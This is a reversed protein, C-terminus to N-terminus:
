KNPSKGGELKKMKVKQFELKDLRQVEWHPQQTKKGGYQINSLRRTRNQPSIDKVTNQVRRHLTKEITMNKIELFGRKEDLKLM